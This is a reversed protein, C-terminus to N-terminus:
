TCVTVWQPGAQVEYCTGAYAHAPGIISTLVAAAVIGLAALFRRNRPM